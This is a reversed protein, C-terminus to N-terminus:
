ASFTVNYLNAFTLRVKKLYAERAKVYKADKGEFGAGGNYAKIIWDLNPNIRSLREMEATGFYIGGEETLLTEKSPSYATYGARYCTEATAVKVQYVGHSTGNDGSLRPNMPGNEVKAIAAAWGINRQAWGSVNRMNRRLMAEYPNMEVVEDPGLIPVVQGGSAAKIAAARADAARKPADWESMPRIHSLWEEGAEIVPALQPLMGRKYAYFAGAGALGLILIGRAGM